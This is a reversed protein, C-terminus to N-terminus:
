GEGADNSEWFIAVVGAFEDRKSFLPYATVEIRRKRGDFTTAQLLQHAPRHELFAIGAPTKARSLPQGDLDELNLSAAWEAVPIEGTPEFAKGIIAEAPENYYVLTGEIDILFMPTALNAALQRSLILVLNKQQTDAM